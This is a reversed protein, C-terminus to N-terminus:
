CIQVLKGSLSGLRLFLLGGAVFVYLVLLGIRLGVMNSQPGPDIYNALGFLLLALASVFGVTIWDFKLREFRRTALFTMIVLVAFAIASAMSAGVMGFSPILMLNAGIVVVAAVIMTLTIYKTREELYLINVWIYQFANLSYILATWPVIQASPALEPPAVLGVLTKAFLSIGLGWFIVLTLYVTIIRYATIPFTEDRWHKMFYTVWALNASSVVFEVALGVTYGLTYAGTESLGRLSSLMVRGSLNVIWGAVVYPLLPLGFRVARKLASVVVKPSIFPVAQQLYGLYCILGAIGQAVAVGILGWSTYSVLVASLGVFLVGYLLSLLTYAAVRDYLRLIQQPLVFGVQFLVGILSLQLFIEYGGDGFLLHSLPQSAVFLLGIIGITVGVSVIWVTGLYSMAQEPDDYDLTQKIVGSAFVASLAAIALPIFGATIGLVGLEQPSLRRSVVFIVLMSALQAGTKSVGFLVTQWALGGAVKHRSFLQSVTATM